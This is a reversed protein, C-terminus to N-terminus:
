VSISFLKSWSYFQVVTLLLLLLQIEVKEFQVKIFLDQKIYCRADLKLSIKKDPPPPYIIITNTLYGLIIKM